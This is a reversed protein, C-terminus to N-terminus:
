MTVPSFLSARWASILCSVRLPVGRAGVGRVCPRFAHWRAQTHAPVAAAPQPTIWYLNIPKRDSDWQILSRVEFTLILSPEYQISAVM